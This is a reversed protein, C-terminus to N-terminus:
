RTKAMCLLGLNLFACADSTQLEQTFTRLNSSIRAVPDYKLCFVGLMELLDVFGDDESKSSFLTKPKSNIKILSTQSANTTLMNSPLIFLGGYKTMETWPLSDLYKWLHALNEESPHTADGPTWAVSLDYSGPYSEKIVEALNKELNLIGYAQLETFNVENEFATIRDFAEPIAAPLHSDTSFYCKRVDNKKLTSWTGNRLPLLPLGSVCGGGSVIYDLLFLREERDMSDIVTLNELCIQQINDQRIIRDQFGNTELHTLVNHADESSLDIINTMVFSELIHKLTDEGSTLIWIKDIERAPCVSRGTMTYLRAESSTLM